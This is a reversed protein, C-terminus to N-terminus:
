SCGALRRTIEIASGESMTESAIGSWLPSFGASEVREAQQRLLGMANGALPFQPVEVSMPGLEDIARNRIGRAPKGSFVNTLATDGPGAAKLASRHLPSTRAEDCLLYATGVQAAVAGCDLVRRVATADGIGGAAIVPVSVEDVVQRLLEYLPRQSSLAETLFMGRHGGAEVGQAIIADVGRQELWLAEEVTTATSLIKVGASQLAEVLALDPLGFHFSVFAPRLAVVQSCIAEDFPRRSPETPIVAPDIGYEDLYRSLVALWRAHQQADFVPPEHCFFNLNFPYSGSDRLASVQSQLQDAGLMACPLSGLGGAQGVAIALAENQVGAM